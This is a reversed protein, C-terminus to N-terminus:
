QDGFVAVHVDTVNSETASSGNNIGVGTTGAAVTDLIINRVVAANDVEIGTVICFNASSFDTAWNITFDGTGSDTISTVNRSANNTGDMAFNVWGKAVGPNFNILDPPVYTDEDTEAELAAQDAQAATLDLIGQVTDRKTNGSDTADGILITDSATVVVETFDGILADKLKTEDVGNNALAATAISGATLVPTRLPSILQLTKTGGADRIVGYVIDNATIDGAVLAVNQKEVAIAGVTDINITAAGTNTGGAEFAFQMGEVYASITPTASATITDTGSSTGLFIPEGDQVQGLSAYHNRASGDAINTHKFGGMPQNATAAQQGDDYLAKSLAAAINGLETDFKDARIKTGADRDDTADFSNTFTGSGNLGAM